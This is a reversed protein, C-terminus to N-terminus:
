DLLEIGALVARLVPGHEEWRSALTTGTVVLQRPGRVVILGVFRIESALGPFAGQAEYSLADHDAVRAHRMSLVALGMGELQARNQGELASLAIGAPLPMSQVNVNALFEVAPGVPALVRVGNLERQEWGEPVPLALGHSRLVWRGEEERAARALEVEFAREAALTSAADAPDAPPPAPAGTLAQEQEPALDRLLDVTRGSRVVRAGGALDEALAAFREADEDRDWLTRWVLARPGDDEREPGLWAADGDWGCAALWADGRPVGALLLLRYLELEGLTDALAGDLPLGLQVDHPLDRGLKAPHLVQETSSPPAAAAARVAALGGSRWRDALFSRGAAYTVALAEGNLVREVEELSQLEQLLELAEEGRLAALAVVEAEGEICAHLANRADTTPRAAFLAALDRDADQRAHVLEHAVLPELGFLGQQLEARASDLFVLEESGIRYYAILQTVLAGVSARRLGRATGPVDIGFEAMVRRRLELTRATGLVDQQEDMDRRADSRGKRLIAVADLEVGYGVRELRLALGRALAAHDLAPQEQAGALAALCLAAIGM